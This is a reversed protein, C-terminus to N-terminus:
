STSEETTGEQTTAEEGEEGEHQKKPKKGATSKRSVVKLLGTPTDNEPDFKGQDILKAIREDRTLVNRHRALAGVSKLSSHISM